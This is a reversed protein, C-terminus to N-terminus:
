KGIFNMIDVIDRMKLTDGPTIASFKDKLMEHLNILPQPGSSVGGFIKLPLGKPRIQCYDFKIAPKNEEFHSELLLKVSEVWGERTDPITFNIAKDEIPQFIRINDSGKTDFGVGVGLMSSDMLFTFPLTNSINKDPKTSVFACNNLATYLRKEETIKSGMTWIGRGPPLFKFNYIKDYMRMAYVMQMEEALSKPAFHNLMSFCGNVIREVTDHWQENTGDEKLRSYTRIYAIEGLGNFGFNVKKDKYQDVFSSPLKYSSSFAKQHVSLPLNATKLIKFQCKRFSGKLVTFM